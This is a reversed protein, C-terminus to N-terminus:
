DIIKDQTLSDVSSGEQLNRGDRGNILDKLKAARQIRDAAEAQSHGTGANASSEVKLELNNLKAGSLNLNIQDSQQWAWILGIIGLILLLGALSLNPSVKKSQNIKKNKPM